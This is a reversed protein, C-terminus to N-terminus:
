AMIYIYIHFENTMEICMKELTKAKGKGALRRELTVLSERKM